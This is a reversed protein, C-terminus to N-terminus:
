EEESHDEQQKFMQELEDATPIDLDLDADQETQAPAQEDPEVELMQELEEASPTEPLIDVEEEGEVATEEKSLEAVEEEGEVMTSVPMSFKSDPKIEPKPLRIYSRLAELVARAEELRKQFAASDERPVPQRHQSPSVALDDDAFEDEEDAGLQIPLISELLANLLYERGLRPAIFRDLLAAMKVQREEARSKVAAIADSECAEKEEESLLREAQRSTIAAIM